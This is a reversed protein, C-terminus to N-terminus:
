FFLQGRSALLRRELITNANSIVVHQYLRDKFTPLPPILCLFFVESFAIEKPSLPEFILM